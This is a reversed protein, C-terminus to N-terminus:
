SPLTVLAAARALTVVGAMLRASPRRRSATPSGSSTLAPRLMTSVGNAVEIRPWTCSVNRPALASRRGEAVADTRVMSRVSTIRHVSM